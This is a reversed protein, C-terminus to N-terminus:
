MKSSMTEEDSSTLTISLASKVANHERSLVKSTPYFSPEKVTPFNRIHSLQIQMNTSLSWIKFCIRITKKPTM